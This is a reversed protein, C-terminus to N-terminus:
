GKAPLKIKLGPYILQTDDKWGNAAVIGAVTTGTKKAIGSLYDGAVVVYTGGASASFTTSTAAPPATTAGTHTATTAATPGTTTQTKTGPACSNPPIKIVNGPFIPHTIGEAWGNYDALTKASICFKKAIRVVLDGGVVTYTQEGPVAGVQGPVTTTVTLTTSTIIPVQTVYSPLGVKITTAPPAGTGGSGSCAGIGLVALAAVGFVVVRSKMPSLM